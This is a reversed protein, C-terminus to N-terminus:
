PDTGLGARLGALLGGFVPIEDDPLESPLINEGPLMRPSQSLEPDASFQSKMLGTMLGSM